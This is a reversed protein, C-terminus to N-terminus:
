QYSMLESRCENDDGMLLAISSETKRMIEKASSGSTLSGIPLVPKPPMIAARPKVAIPVDVQKPM